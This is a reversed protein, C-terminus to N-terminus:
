KSGLTVWRSLALLALMFYGLGQILHVVFPRALVLFHWSATASPARQDYCKGHAVNVGSLLMPMPGNGDSEMRPTVHFVQHM